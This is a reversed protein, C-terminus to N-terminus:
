KEDVFVEEFYKYYKQQIIFNNKQYNEFREKFEYEKFTLSISSRTMNKLRRDYCMKVIIIEVGRVM